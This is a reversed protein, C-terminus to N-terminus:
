SEWERLAIAVGAKLDTPLNQSQHLVSLQDHAIQSNLQKLARIVHLQVSLDPTALLEILPAIARQDGLLGLSLAIERQILPLQLVPQTSKLQDILVDAIKPILDPRDFRSISCIVEHCLDISDLNNLLGTNLLETNLLETLYVLAQSSNIWGLARIAQIRLPQPIQFTQLLQFLQEAALDNGVRGLAIAAQKAVDLNLDLLLPTLLDALHDLSYSTAGFEVNQKLRAAILGVGVVAERRVMSAPDDIAKIVAPVIAPDPFNSLAKIATARVMPEPDAVVSQLPAIVEASRICTLSRTALLRTAPDELQKALASITTKGLRGLADAAIASLDEDESQLLKVLSNIVLPHDFEGLIRAAFWCLDPDGAESDEIVQVLPFIVSEGLKSIQKAVEWRQQFDGQVLTAIAADVDGGGLDAGDEAKTLNAAGNLM